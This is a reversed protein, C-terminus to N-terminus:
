GFLIKRVKDRGIKDVLENYFIFLYFLFFLWLQTSWFRPSQLANSVNLWGDSWYHFHMRGRILLDVVRLLLIVVAYVSFKWLVNVLLPRERLLNLFPLANVLIIVKGAVLAGLTATLYTFQDPIDHYRLLLSDNFLVLNFCIAFYIVAPIISILEKKLWIWLRAM